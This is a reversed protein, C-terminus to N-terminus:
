KLRMDMRVVDGRYISEAVFILRGKDDSASRHVVAVPAMLPMTLMEATLMCATGITMTQRVEGITLGPMESLIRLGTKRAMDEPPIKKCIAEDIFVESLLFPQDDRWHRRQFRRYSKARTGIDHLLAPPQHGAEESLAEIVAGERALLLGSWDTEVECWLQDQPRNTVFTGKARFREILREDELIDLAQRVTARAVGHDAALVEITPIQDGIAWRGSSIHRRFLTALQVYRSVGTPGDAILAKAQATHLNM